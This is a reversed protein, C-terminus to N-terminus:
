AILLQETHAFGGRLPVDAEWQPTYTNLPSMPSSDPSHWAPVSGSPQDYAAQQARQEQMTLFDTLSRSIEWMGMVVLRNALEHQGTRHCLAHIYDADGVQMFALPRDAPLEELTAAWNRLHAVALDDRLEAMCTLVIEACRACAACGGCPTYWLQFPRSM